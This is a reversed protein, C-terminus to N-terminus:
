RGKRAGEGETRGNCLPAEDVGSVAAATTTGLRRREPRGPARRGDSDRGDRGRRRADRHSWAAAPSYFSARDPGGGRSRGDRSRRAERLPPREHSKASSIAGRANYDDESYRAAGWALPLRRNFPTGHRMSSRRRSSRNAVCSAYREIIEKRERATVDIQRRPPSDTGRHLDRDYITATFKGAHRLSESRELM